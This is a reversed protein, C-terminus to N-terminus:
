EGGAVLQGRGAVSEGSKVADADATEALGLRRYLTALPRPAWWNLRGLLRMTAPVVLARVITADIAVALALGLGLAKILSVDALAFAAFVVVMIAAAGTVLRGSRELGEAVAARNDGSREYSEKIRSLLLVEYDMSLGFVICFLLVPLLPDLAAPAFDLATSFHGQQFIWVIAGFSASISLVDTIVAKLPLVVSGLLLFLALYTAVVIFGVAAPTDSLIRNTSDVDYATQGTVLIAGDGATHIDRIHRVIARAADSTPAQTTIAYLVAIRPGTSQRLANQLAAPLLRRPGDYLRQYGARSLGPALDFPSEVRTVDPLAAIKHSLDYLVGARAYTLPRGPFQVVVPIATTNRGPFRDQLLTYGQVVEASPPLESINSSAALRLSLFPSGTLLLLPLAVALVLVPRRMVGQALRRWLGGDARPHARVFPLRWRNVRPGLLALLAPLFTLAYVVALAVVVTGALGMSALLTGQYFLMGALGIAVTIGSFTIARGATAMSRVLADPVAAGRDLEERFRNVIFLSYDISVGLGVLTVINLAYQSVDTSRTLLYVGGIGGVITLVGVGLPLLAAVVAGFVLLLLILSLPLSVLEARSLDRNLTRKFTASIALDGTAHVTLGRPAILARLRPYDGRATNFDDKLYVTALADHGDRSVLARAATPSVSYPTMISTVTSDRRLPALAARMDSRFRPDSVRLVASGFVIDFSVSGGTTSPLQSNILDAARTSEAGALNSTRLDGGGALAVSSGVLLLLSFALVLLRHRYVIYGWRAFM